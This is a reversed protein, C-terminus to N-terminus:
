FAFNCEFEVGRYKWQYISCKEIFLRLKEIKASVINGVLAGRNYITVIYVPHKRFRPVVPFPTSFIAQYLLLDFIHVVIKKM